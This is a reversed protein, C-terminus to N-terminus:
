DQIVCLDKYVLYKSSLLPYRYFYDRVIVHSTNNHAVAMFSYFTKHGRIRSRSYLNVTLFKAVMTIVDFLNKEETVKTNTYNQKVQIWFITQVNTRIM